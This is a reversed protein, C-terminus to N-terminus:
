SAGNLLPPALFEVLLVAIALLILFLFSVVFVKTLPWRGLIKDLRKWDFPEAARRSAWDPGHLRKNAEWGMQAELEALAHADLLDAKRQRVLSILAVASIVVSLSCAVVRGLRTTQPDLAITFTFAQSTFVFLPVQWILQYWNVMRATLTNYALLDQSSLGTRKKM